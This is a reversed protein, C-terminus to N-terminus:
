APSVMTFYNGGAAIVFETSVEGTQGFSGNMGGQPRQGMGEPMTEGEPVTPMEGGQVQADEGPQPPIQYDGEPPDFDSPPTIGGPIQGGEADDDRSWQGGPAEGQPQAQGGPNQGPQEPIQYDGEPPEGEFQGPMDGPSGVNGEAGGFFDPRGMGGMTGMGALQTRGMWLTYTGPELGDGSLILYSFDNEPACEMATEGAENKLTLATGGPFSGDFQFVAYTADGGAIRDLMQGAAIVTGGNLYIGMDSDIGADGSFGCASAIVTGGNIVLWGNSDIGDGEGTTGLVNITLSGGNITTVSVDDENTNIGDNGSNIFLNGGNITLHLESDLGENEANITLIGDGKEGGSINMSMKSYFAGDYKHLKKAEEVEDGDEDLVVTGEKYIRAVYSGNVTNVSGDAIIVNAGAASTDVVPGALETDKAGCEYVNYFIIAPAVTCQIDVGDLILTVVADPDDKADEGLDVAIQGASMSGSIRYTGAKTIHVVTHADAESAEHEDASAGEGYTFDHGAEYYVIDNATYVGVDPEVYVTDEDLEIVVTDTSALEGPVTTEAPATHHESQEPATTEGGAGTQCGSLMMAAALLVCFLKKM